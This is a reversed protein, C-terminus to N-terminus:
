SKGGKEIPFQRPENFPWDEDGRPRTIALAREIEQRSLDQGCDRLVNLVLLLDYSVLLPGEKAEPIGTIYTSEQHIM